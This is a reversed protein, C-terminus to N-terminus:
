CDDCGGDQRVLKAKIGASDIDIGSKQHLQLQCAHLQLLLNHVERDLVSKSARVECLENHVDVLQTQTLFFMFVEDPYPKISFLHYKIFM